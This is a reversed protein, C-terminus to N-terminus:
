KVASVAPAEQLQKELEADAPYGLVTAKRYHWQALEKLPPKQKSYVLALLYHAERHGPIIQIAKRLATEAQAPAGKQLLVKGLLYQTRAEDPLLKVSLSLADLAEDYKNQQFRLYGKLYLCLADEPDLSLAKDVNKGADDLHGQEVQVAALRVLTYTNNEDQRLVDQYKKEAEDLRGGELARQAEAVLQGAGAPVESPRKVPKVATVDIKQDPQKFLALEEPTYPIAKAEFAELRARAIKLQRDLEEANLGSSSAVSVSKKQELQARLDDRERELKEVLSNRADGKALAALRTELVIQETRLAINAAQLASITSKAIELQESAKNAPLTAPYKLDEVRLKLTTNEEQLAAALETQRVLKQKIDAVLQREQELVAPDIAMRGSKGQEQDLRVQLLDKEKQLARIQEEAKALDRPDAGAPQVTLAEKLKAQLLGNQSNLRTIEDQMAKVQDPDITSKNTAAKASFDVQATADLKVGPNPVAPTLQATLPELQSAVYSLRYNVVKPNWDPSLKQLEKLLSQAEAYKDAADRKAGKANFGDAEQILTYIWVYKEDASQAQAVLVAALLLAGIPAFYRTM